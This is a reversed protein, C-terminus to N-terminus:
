AINLKAKVRAVDKEFDRLDLRMERLDVKVQDLDKGFYEMKQLSKGAAAAFGALVAFGTVYPILQLLLPTNIVGILKLISWVLLILAGILVVQIIWDLKIGVKQEIWHRLNRM